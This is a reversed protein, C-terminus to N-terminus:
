SNIMLKLLYKESVEIAHVVRGDNDDSFLYIIFQRKISDYKATFRLQGKKNRINIFKTKSNAKM